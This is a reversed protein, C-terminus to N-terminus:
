GVDEHIGSVATTIWQRTGIAVEAAVDRIIVPDPREDELLAAAYAYGSARVRGGSM